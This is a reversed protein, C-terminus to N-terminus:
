APIALPYDVSEEILSRIARTNERLIDLRLNSIETSLAVLQSLTAGETGGFVPRHGNPTRISDRTFNDSILGACYLHCAELIALERPRQVTLDSKPINYAIGCINYSSMKVRGESDYMLTKMLRIAKRLGGRTEQDREEIRRKHLFPLNAIFENIEKNLIKVGRVVKDQTRVYDHTDFWTAPVVDVDRTLSGGTLRIACPRSDDVKATPFAKGLAVNADTRLQRMDVRPDGAYPNNSPQSDEIWVWGKRVLLMDVDSRAKIHTDTSTSGQFEIECKQHLREELQSQVREGQLFTNKTYEPDIPQMAGIAYRVSESKDMRKYVENVMSAKVLISSDTRREVLRELRGM